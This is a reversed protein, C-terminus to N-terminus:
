IQVRFKVHLKRTEARKRSNNQVQRDREKIGSESHEKRDM